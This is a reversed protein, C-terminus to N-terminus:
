IIVYKPLRKKARFFSLIKSYMYILRQSSIRGLSTNAYNPARGYTGIFKVIDTAIKVYESKYIIGHRYNENYRLPSEVSKATLAELNGNNINGIAKTFLYLLQAMIYQRGAIVVNSPLKGYCEYYSKVINAAVVISNITLRPPITVTVIIPTINNITVNYAGPKTLTEHFTITISKGPLVITSYSGTLRNNIYLKTTYNESIDGYNTLTATVTIRLPALGTKPIVKLNSITINASRYTINEYFRPMELPICRMATAYYLEALDIRGDGNADTMPDSFADIIADALLFAFAVTETGTATIITTNADFFSTTDNYNRTAVGGSYCSDLILIKNYCCISRMLEELEYNYIESNKVHFGYVNNPAYGHASIYVIFTDGKKITQALDKVTNFVQEKTPEILKRIKYGLKVLLVTMEEVGWAYIDPGKILLAYKNAGIDLYRKHRGQITPIDVVNDESYESYIAYKEINSINNGIITNGKSAFITIGNKGGLIKNYIIKNNDSYAVTIGDWLFNEIINDKILNNSSDGIFIGSYKSKIFNNKQITNSSSSIIAIGCDACDNFTNNFIENNNTNILTIGFRLGNFQNNIITINKATQIDIANCDKGVFKFGEIYINNTSFIHIIDNFNSSGNNPDSNGNLIVSGNAKLTISKWIHISENYTGQNVIIWHGDGTAPDDIAEQITTFTKTTNQNIVTASAPNLTIYLAFILLIWRFKSLKM